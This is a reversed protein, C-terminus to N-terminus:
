ELPLNRRAGPRDQWWSEIAGRYRSYLYSTVLLFVGLVAFAAVRYMGRSIRWVDHLYLKLVVLAILGLGMMRNVATRTAVGLAVLIVAYGALLISLATSRANALEAPAATRAAWGLVELALGWLLVFHGAVYAVLAARGTALWHASLWLAAAAIAFTLFRANWIASYAHPDAYIWSDVALLRILVLAFVALAAVHLWRDAMRAGLWALAAAELAWVMAVRFGAFQIPAALTLAAIGIGFYVSHAPTGRGDPPRATRLANGVAVHVAGVSAALLGGYTHASTGLLDYGAAVYFGACLAAALLDQGRAATKRAGIRWPTWAAFLLFAISLWLLAPMAGGHEELTSFSAAYPLWFAALTVLPAEAWERRDAVVLGTVTVVAALPLWPQWQPLSAVALAALASMQAGAFLLRSRRSAFLVYFALAFVNAALKSSTNFGLLWWWYLLTTGLFALAPLVRWNRARAVALAGLDLVLVYGFLQWPRNQGASLVLPTLFGGALGLAAMAASRYRLALSGAGATTLVMLSFALALPMLGYLTFAAYFAVYLIAVGAGSLGQAFVRQGRRWLLEGLGALALGAVIGLTVRGRQGIWRNDVAYKFFFAAGLVLTIVGVRNIWTLGLRTEFLAARRPPAPAAVPPPAPTAPPERAPTATGGVGRAEELRALRRELEAQRRVMRALAENLAELREDEHQAM